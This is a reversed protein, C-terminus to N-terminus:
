KTPQGTVLSNSQPNQAVKVKSIIFVVAVLSAFILFYATLYAVKLKREEFWNKILARRRRDSLPKKELRLSRAKELAQELNLASNEHLAAIAQRWEDCQRRADGEIRACMYGSTLFCLGEFGVVLWGMRGLGWSVPISRTAVLFSGLVLYPGVLVAFAIKTRFTMLNNTTTEIEKSLYEVIGSTLDESSLDQIHTNDKAGSHRM